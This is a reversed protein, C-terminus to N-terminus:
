EDNDVNDKKPFCLYVVGVCFAFLGAHFTEWTEISFLWGLVFVASACAAFKILKWQNTSM